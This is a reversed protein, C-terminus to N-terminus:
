PPLSAIYAAIAIMESQTMQAANVQMPGAM